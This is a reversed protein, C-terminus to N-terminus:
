RLSQDSPDGPEDVRPRPIRPRDVETGDSRRDLHRVRAHAGPSARSTPAAHAAVAERDHGAVAHDRRVALEAAERRRAPDFRLQPHELDLAAVRWAASGTRAAQNPRSAILADAAALDFDGHDSGLGQAVLAAAACGLARPTPATAASRSAACSAPRSPTAAAPRTSSRSRSRRSGSARGRRRRAARRRRRLDRRRLRRRARGAGPLRGRPRRDGTFGLVQDDNPLLYDLHPSRRRSGSSCGRSARPSCTPRPSSARARAGRALIERRPRAAWSSPAASTCTPPTPSSTGRRRRRARLDRQRRRRPVRPPQRRPPDAAREGLDPRRRPPRAALHRDRRARAARRLMDGVADTGIAGASRVEAGLKALTLATGGASGAATIRIQEVLEGGQGEPIAEVPRVLVDLVHVGMAVARMEGSM